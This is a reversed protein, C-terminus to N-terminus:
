RLWYGISSHYLPVVHVHLKLSSLACDVGITKDMGLSAHGPGGNVAVHVCLLQPTYTNVCAGVM